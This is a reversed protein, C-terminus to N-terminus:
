RLRPLWAEAPAAGELRKLFGARAGARSLKGSSTRPLTHPPVLEILCRIGIEELIATQLREVLAARRAPDSLRCQVVMAAMEEGGPGSVSFAAAARGSVEAQQVAIYELDQPWINRGNIILLDKRRGTIVLSGDLHYGLDGTDLWGEPSLVEATAAADAFYGPSVSPGRVFVTGCRRAPLARGEEDRVEVEFGPLARGCNVFRGVEAHGPTDDVPLAIRSEALRRRDVRDVRLGADLPSFSVALSCEAMGYCAMFARRDFGAPAFQDAFQELADPRIMEAGVGAVRWSRLDLRDVDERRLRQACLEYGFTPSFAITARSASILALWQLPRKAFETPNLYDVSLQSAMPALVFGVFGMDHYYPLWSVARDGARVGIGVRLIGTLNNMLAAQTVVVGRVFRTTGSTYQLFATDTPGLARLESGSAALDDFAAPEGLFRLPLGEAAQRLYPLFAPPAMAAEAGCSALLHHLQAVYVRQSGLHLSASFPVPVLGAYQCAFFFRIFDPNTDAVLAVRAGRELGLGSLRRALDLSRARLEAYTLTAYHEGRGSHFNYGTRGGAAYDLADALSAFGGLRLPLTNDTPTATTDM